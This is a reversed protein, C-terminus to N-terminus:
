HAGEFYPGLVKQYIYEAQERGRDISPYVDLYCQLIDSVPVHNILVSSDFILKQFPARVLVLSAASRSEDVVLDLASLIEEQPRNAYLFASRINSRGMGMLHCALHRGIVIPSGKGSDKPKKCYYRIKKLFRDEPENEYLFRLGVQDKGKHKLAYAWDELLEQHRQIIFGNSSRKLFGAQEARNIFVSVSPQSVGSVEALEGISRPEHDPGGWYRQDIGPLLLVKLLWQNKPSFLNGQAPSPHRASEKQLPDSVAVEEDKGDMHMRGSGFEDLLIWNLDPLHLRAYEQLDAEAKRSMRGMLIAVLLRSKPEHSSKVNHQFRLIADGILARFEPARYAHVAKIEVILASEAGKRFVADVKIREMNVEEANGKCFGRKSLIEAIRARLYKYKSEM